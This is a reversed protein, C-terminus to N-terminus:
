VAGRRGLSGWPLAPPAKKPLSANANDPAETAERLGSENEREIARELQWRRLANRVKLPNARRAKNRGTRRQWCGTWAISRASTCAQRLLLMFKEEATKKRHDQRWAQEVAFNFLHAGGIHGYIHEADRVRNFFSEVTNTHVLEDGVVQFYRQKHNICYHKGKAALRTFHSASDTFIKSHKEVHDLVFKRGESERQVVVVLTPGKRERMAFVCQAGVQFRQRRRDDRHKHVNKPRNHGGVFCGDAEVSGSLTRGKQEQGMVERLKHQLVRATTPSVDVMDALHEASIGVPASAFLSVAYLLTSLPLKM